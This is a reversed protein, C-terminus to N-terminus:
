FFEYNHSNLHNFYLIIIDVQHDENDSNRILGNIMNLNKNFDLKIKKEISMLEYFEKLFISDLNKNDQIQNSTSLDDLLILIENEM